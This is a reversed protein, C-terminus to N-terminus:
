KFFSISNLYNAFKILLSGIGIINVLIFSIILWKIKQADAMKKEKMEKIDGAVKGCLVQIKQQNAESRIDSKEISILAKAHSVDADELKEINKEVHDLRVDNVSKEGAM